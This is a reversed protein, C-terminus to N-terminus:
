DLFLNQLSSNPEPDHSTIGVVSTTNTVSKNNCSYKVVDNGNMFVNEYIINEVVSQFPIFHKVLDLRLYGFVFENLRNM